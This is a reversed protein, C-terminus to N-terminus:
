KKWQERFYESALMQPITNQFTEILSDQSSLGRKKGTAEWSPFAKDAWARTTRFIEDWTTQDTEDNLLLAEGASLKFVTHISESYFIEKLHPVSIVSRVSTIGLCLAAQTRVCLMNETLAIILPKEADYGIDRILEQVHQLVIHIGQLSINRYIKPTFQVLPVRAIKAKQRIIPETAQLLPLVVKSGQRALESRLKKTEDIQQLFQAPDAMSKFNTNSGNTNGLYKEIQEELSLSQRRPSADIGQKNSEL